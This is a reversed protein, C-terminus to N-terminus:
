CISGCVLAIEQCSNVLTRFVCLLCGVAVFNRWVAMFLEFSVQRSFIEFVKAGM